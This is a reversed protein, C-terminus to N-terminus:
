NSLVIKRGQQWRVLLMRHALQKGTKPEIQFRGYFTTSDLAAAITRLEPNDLSTARRICEAVILGAAFSGAAVYDLPGGFRSRFERTFRDSGPQVNESFSVGPEWQSPGITGDALTGLKLSFESVGAAVAAVTDVTSPWLQRSRMLTLEQQFTGALVVIEPKTAHLIPIAWHSEELSPIMPTLEVSHGLLQASELVGRAVQWAFSGKRSYFISIRSSVPPKKSLRHPLERLYDSAPSAIGVVHDFGRSFIEDSSGGYNWLVMRYEEAIESVAMTLGSSYPGFLIDVKDDRLLRFVNDRACRALSRDDYCILRVHRKNAAGVQIGGEANVLSQWLLLGNLAQQGQFHFRGSLSISLGATIERESM